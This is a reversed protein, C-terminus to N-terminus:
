HVESAQRFPASHEVYARARPRQRKRDSFLHALRPDHPDIRGLFVDSVRDALIGECISRAKLDAVCLLQSVGIRTKIGGKRQEHEIENGIRLFRYELKTAYGSRAASERRGNPIIAVAHLHQL